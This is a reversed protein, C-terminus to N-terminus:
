TWTSHSLVWKGARPIEWGAGAALEVRVYLLAPERGPFAPVRLGRSNVRGACSELEWVEKKLVVGRHWVSLQWRPYHTKCMVYLSDFETQYIARCMPQSGRHQALINNSWCLAAFRLQQQKWTVWLDFALTFSIVCSFIVPPVRKVLGHFSVIIHM